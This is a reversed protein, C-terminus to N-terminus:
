GVLCIEIDVRDHKLLLEERLDVDELIYWIRILEVGNRLFNLRLLLDNRRTPSDSAPGTISRAILHAVTKNFVVCLVRKVGEFGEGFRM